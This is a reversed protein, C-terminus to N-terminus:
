GSGVRPVAGSGGASWGALLHAVVPAYLHPLVNDDLPVTVGVREEAEGVFLAPDNSDAFCAVDLGARAAAGAFGHDAIVLDPPPAGDAALAALMGDMGAPSHSHWLAFRDSAMAVGGVYLVQARPVPESSAAPVEFVAGAAPTLIPCGAARLASVLALHIELIGTPHGTAVLVRERRGAAQALRERFRDLAAVTRAPDITDPGTERSLDPDIGVRDAILAVVREYSWRQRPPLGFQYGPEGAAFRRANGLNSERPTNVQGAIRATVLHHELVGTAAPM